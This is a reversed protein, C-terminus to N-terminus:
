CVPPAPDRDDYPNFEGFRFPLDIDQTHIASKSQGDTLVAARLIHAQFIVVAAYNPVAVAGRKVTRPSLM